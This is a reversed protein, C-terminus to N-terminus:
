TRATASLCCIAYTVAVVCAKVGLEDASEGVLHFVPKDIANKLEQPTM